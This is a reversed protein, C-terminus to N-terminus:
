KENFKWIENIAISDAYIKKKLIYNKSKLFNDIEEIAINKPILTPHKEILIAPKFNLFTNNMGKLVDYEAGEVDIKIFKPKLSLSDVLLDITTSKIKKKIDDSKFKNDIAIFAPHGYITDVQYVDKGSSIPNSIISFKIKKFVNNLISLNEFLEDQVSHDPQCSIFNDFDNAKPALIYSFHGHYAGVDIFDGGNYNEFAFNAEAKLRPWGRFPKFFTIIKRTVRYKKKDWFEVNAPIKNEISKVYRYFKPFIKKLTLNM